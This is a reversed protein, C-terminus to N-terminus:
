DIQARIDSREVKEQGHDLILFRDSFLYHKFMNNSGGNRSPYFNQFGSLHKKKIKDTHCKDINELSANALGVSPNLSTM